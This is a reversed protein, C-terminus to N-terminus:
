QQDLDGGPVAGEFPSIFFRQAGDAFDTDVTDLGVDGEDGVHEVVLGELLALAVGLEDVLSRGEKLDFAALVSRGLHEVVNRFARNSLVACVEDILRGSERRYGPVALHTELLHQVCLSRFLDGLPDLFLLLKEDSIGGAAVGM